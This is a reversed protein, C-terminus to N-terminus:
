RSSANVLGYSLDNQKTLFNPPSSWRYKKNLQYGTECKAQRNISNQLEKSFLGLMIMLAHFLAKALGGGCAPELVSRSM